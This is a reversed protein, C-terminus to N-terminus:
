VSRLNPEKSNNNSSTHGESGARQVDEMMRIVEVMTPRRDPSWSTCVMAIHLMHVLEDEISPYKMLQVDFVEATWEERVVSHVWRPLDVCGDHGQSQLPAKGTLMEMLLVGFSYVDSKHTFKRSEFTEPARYGIGIVIRSAHIPLSMLASLGYDSVYPNHDQDLLINTSKINGHALKSGGESHIHAIGRATGLIIKM